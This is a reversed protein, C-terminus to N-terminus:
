HGAAARSAREYDYLFGFENLSEPPFFIRPMLFISIGLAIGGGTMLGLSLRDPAEDGSMQWLVAGTAVAGLSLVTAIWSAAIGRNRASRWAVIGAEADSDGALHYFDLEDIQRDGLFHGEFVFTDHEEVWEIRHDFHGDVHVVRGRAELPEGTAVVSPTTSMCGGAALLATGLFGFLTRMM